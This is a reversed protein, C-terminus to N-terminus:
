MEPGLPKAPLRRRASLPISGGDFRGRMGCGALCTGGDRWRLRSQDRWLELRCQGGWDTDYGPVRLVLRDGQLEARGDIWCSHGNYFQLSLALDAHTRDVPRIEVINESRYSEGDVLGNMFSEVYRGALRDLRLAPPAAFAAASLAIVLAAPLGGLRVARRSM